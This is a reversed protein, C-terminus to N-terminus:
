RRQRSAAPQGAARGGDALVEQTASFAILTAQTEAIITNLTTAITGVEDKAAHEIPKTVARVSIQTDGQALGDIAKKLGSICHSQLSTARDLIELVADSIRRGAWFTVAVSALLLALLSGITLRVSQAYTAAGFARAAESADHNFQELQQLSTRVTAFREKMPGNMESQANATQKEDALDRIDSWAAFYANIVSDTASFLRREDAGTLAQEYERLRRTVSDQSTRITGDVVARAEPTASLVYNFQFLRLQTLSARLAAVRETQPLWREAIVTTQANIQRMARLSLLSVATSGALVAGLVVLLKNRIKLNNFWASMDNFETRFHVL